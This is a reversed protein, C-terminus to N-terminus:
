SGLNLFDIATMSGTYIKLKSKSKLQRLNRDAIYNNNLSDKQNMNIIKQKMKAAQTEPRRLTHWLIKM